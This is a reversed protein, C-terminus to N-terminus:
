TNNCIIIAYSKIQAKEYDFTLFIGMFYTKACLAHKRKELSWFLVQIIAMNQTLKTKQNAKAMDLWGQNLYLRQLSFKKTLKIKQITEAMDLWGQNLYSRQLSFNQTLKTKQNAEAFDLWGQHLSARRLSFNSFDSNRTGDM